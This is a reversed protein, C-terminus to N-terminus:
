ARATLPVRHDRDAKMRVDPVTWVNGSIESWPAGITEATRAATLVTIELARAAIGEQDRLSTMFAPLDAYPLAPHNKGKTRKALVNELHGTWRAPNPVDDSRYGHTNAYNMIKEIRGRLRSATENKSNWIPSLVRLVARTDIDCVSLPGMEPYAYTELTSSWQDAHKDNTWESKKAAMFAKACDKFTKVKGAARRALAALPLRQCGEAFTVRPPLPSSWM